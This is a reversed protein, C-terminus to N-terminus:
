STKNGAVENTPKYEGNFDLEIVYKEVGDKWNQYRSWDLVSGDLYTGQLLISKGERDAENFYGCRDQEVIQYIYSIHDTEVDTDVYKTEEVEIEDVLTNFDNEYKLLKYSEFESFQSEKWTIKIENEASVTVNTISTKFPNRDYRPRYKRTQSKSVFDQNHHLAQVYYVYDEDCLGTDIFTTVEGDVRGIKLFVNSDDRRYIEYSMVSDWGIYPTWDLQNVYPDPSSVGLDILCHDDSSSGIFDCYDVVQLNFCNAGNPESVYEIEMHMSDQKALTHQETGNNVLYNKFKSIKSSDFRISVLDNALYTAYLIPPTDIATEDTILIEQSVSDECGNDVSAFLQIIKFGPTQYAFQPNIDNSNINGLTGNEGFSWRFSRVETVSQVSGIYEEPQFKCITDKIEFSVLPRAHVELEKSFSDVCFHSNSSVLTLDHKGVTLGELSDLQNKSKEVGDLKWVRSDTFSGSDSFVVNNYECFSTGNPYSTQTKPSRYIVISDEPEFVATCGLSDYVIISPHVVEELVNATKVTYTHPGFIAGNKSSDLTSGDNYNMYAYSEDISKDIFTVELPECGVFNEMEFLPLPGAVVLYNERLLTDYCGENNKAVLSIDYGSEWGSNKMYITGASSSITKFLEGQGFDWILTDARKSTSQFEAFVPACQLFSDVATFEAIVEIIEFDRTLTDYCINKNTVVQQLTFDGPSDVNFGYKKDVKSTQTVVSNDLLSWSVSSVGNYSKDSVKLDDGLCIINDDITFGARVGVLVKSSTSLYTCGASNTIELKIYYDGDENFTFEPNSSSDDDILVGNSPYSYWRYQYTEEDFGVHYDQVITSSANIKLGSCGYTTDMEINAVLGNVFIPTTDKVLCGGAIDHSYIGRYEGLVYPTVYSDAGKTTYFSASNLREFRWSHNFNAHVPTTLGKVGIRGGKCVITDALSYDLEPKVVEVIDELRLTDKCGAANQAVVEIDYFGVSDYSFTPSRLDSSDLIDTDNRDYFYWDFEDPAVYTAPRTENMVTMVQDICIVKPTVDFDLTLSDQYIYSHRVMTDKCGNNGTAILQVGYNGPLKTFTFEPDSDTSTDFSKNGDLITWDYTVSTADMSDTKNNLHVTHPM